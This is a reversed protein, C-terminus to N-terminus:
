AYSANLQSLLEPWAAVNAADGDNSLAIGLSKAHQVVQQGWVHQLSSDVASCDGIVPLRTKPLNLDQCSAERFVEM